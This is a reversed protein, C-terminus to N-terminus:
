PYLPMAEREEVTVQVTFPLNEEEQQEDHEVPQPRRRAQDGNPLGVIRREIIQNLVFVAVFAIAFLLLEHIQQTLLIIFEHWGSYSCFVGCKQLAETPVM